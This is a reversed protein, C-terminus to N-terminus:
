RSWKWAAFGIAAVGIGMAFGIAFRGWSPEEQIEISSSSQSGSVGVFDGYRGGSPNPPAPAKGMLCRIGDCLVTGTMADIWHERNAKPATGLPLPDSPDAYVWRDGIYFAVLVHKTEPYGQGVIAAPMGVTLGAAALAASLDDCDGGDFRIGGCTGLLCEPSVLYEGDIPDPVYLKDRRLANLLADAVLLPDNPRGSENLVGIAWSRVQPDLRAARAKNAAERASLRAGPEGRPHSRVHVYAVQSM